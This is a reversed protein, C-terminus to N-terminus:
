VLRFVRRATGGFVLALDDEPKGALEQWTFRLANAYGERSSVPPFDSGWMLRDPGFADYARQLLPLGARDFPFPSTVPMNRVCFEGLGHIKMHVNSYQALAFVREHLASVEPADWATCGGLHEVVISLDPLARVLADFDPSALQAPTAACSITLGLESAKRWIALPDDGPGRTDAHLRVGCAGRKACSELQQLADPKATDIMVVSALRDPYRRVCDFQYENDYYGNIQILVAKEVHNRDMQTLLSEVPEYWIPTCHCHTDVISLTEAPVSM